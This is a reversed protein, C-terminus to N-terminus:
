DGACTKCVIPQRERDRMVYDFWQHCIMCPKTAWHTEERQLRIPPNRLLDAALEEAPRYGATTQSRDAM